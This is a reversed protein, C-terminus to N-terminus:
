ITKKVETSTAAVQTTATERKTTIKKDAVGLIITWIDAWKSNKVKCVINKEDAVSIEYTNWKKIADITSKYDKNNEIKLMNKISTMLKESVKPSLVNSTISELFLDYNQLEATWAKTTDTFIKKLPVLIDNKYNLADTNSKEIGTFTDTDLKKYKGTDDVQNLLKNTAENFTSKAIEEDENKKKKEPLTGNDLKNETIIYSLDKSGAFLYSALYKWADKETKIVYSTRNGEKGKEFYESYTTEEKWVSLVRVRENAKAINNRTDDSRIVKTIINKFIDQNNNVAEMNLKEEKENKNKKIFKEEGIKIPNNADNNYLKIWIKVISPDIFEYYQKIDKEISEFHEFWTKFDSWKPTSDTDEKYERKITPDLKATLTTIAEKEKEDLPFEDKYLKDIKARMEKPFRNKLQWKGLGFMQMLSILLKWLTDVVNTEKKEEIFARLNLITKKGEEDLKLIEDQFTKSLALKNFNATRTEKDAWLLDVKEINLYGIYTHMLAPSNQRIMYDTLVTAYWNKLDPYQSIETWYETKTKVENDNKDVGDTPKYSLIQTLINGINDETYRTGKAEMFREFAVFNWKNDFSNIGKQTSTRDIDSFEKDADFTKKITWDINKIEVNPINKDAPIKQLDTKSWRVIYKTENNDKYQIVRENSKDFRSDTFDTGKWIQIDTIDGSNKDGKIYLKTLGAFVTTDDIKKTGSENPSYLTELTKEFKDKNQEFLDNKVKEQTEYNTNLTESATKKNKEAGIIVTKAETERDIMNKKLGRVTELDDLLIDGWSKKSYKTLDTEFATIAETFNIVTKDTMDNRNVNKNKIQIKLNNAIDKLVNNWKTDLINVIEKKKPDDLKKLFDTVDAKQWEQVSNKIEEQRSKVELQEVM